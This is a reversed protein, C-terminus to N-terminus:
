LDFLCGWRRSGGGGATNGPGELDFLCPPSSELCWGRLSRSQSYPNKELVGTHIHDTRRVCM